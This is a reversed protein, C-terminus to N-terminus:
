GLIARVQEAMAAGLAAHADQDLHVGDDPSVAAVSGADFFAAGRREAVNRYMPALRRSTETAGGFGWVESHETVDGLPAPSM